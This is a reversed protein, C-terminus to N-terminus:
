GTATVCGVGLNWAKSPDTMIPTSGQDFVLEGEDDLKKVHAVVSVAAALQLRPDLDNYVSEVVEGVTRAGSRVAELIQAERAIRHDLYRAIAAAPDGIEDGHGPLLRAPRTERVRHLSRFYSTMDGVVVTSGEMIHDGTFLTGGLRFCLHDDTHGPTYLVEIVARGFILRDGERLRRDPDFGPGAAYGYSPVGFEAAMPNALPAHDSHTHTVLFARPQLGEIADRIAARHLDHIPGPDIVVCDDESVIVYTNTGPGTFLGPNPALLRVVSTGPSTSLNPGTGTM